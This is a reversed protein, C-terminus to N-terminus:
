PSLRNFMLGNKRNGVVKLVRFCVKRNKSYDNTVVLKYERSVRSKLFEEVVFDIPEDGAWSVSLM